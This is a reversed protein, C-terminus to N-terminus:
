KELLKGGSDLLNEPLTNVRSCWVGGCGKSWQAAGAGGQLHQNSNQNSKCLIVITITIWYDPCMITVNCDRVQAARGQTFISVVSKKRTNNHGPQIM